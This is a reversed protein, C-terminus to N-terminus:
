DFRGAYKESRGLGIKLKTKFWPRVDAVEIKSKYKQYIDPHFKVITKAGWGIGTKPHFDTRHSQSLLLLFMEDAYKKKLGKKTAYHTAVGVSRVLWKNENHLLDKLLPITKKPFLLLSHGMVREALNDCIVWENGAMMYEGAKQIPEEIGKPLRLQLMIGAVVSCGNEHLQMIKDAVTLQDEEKIKESLLKAGYELLPYRVKSQLLNIHLDNIFPVLDKSNYLSLSKEIRQKVVPKQTIIVSM